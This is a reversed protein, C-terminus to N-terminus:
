KIIDDYQYPYLNNGKEGKEGAPGQPGQPGTDGKDGKPGQFFNLGQNDGFGPLGSFDISFVSARFM